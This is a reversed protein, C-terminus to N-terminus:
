PAKRHRDALSQYLERLTKAIKDESCDKIRESGNSRKGTLLIESIAQRPGVGNRPVVIFETSDSRQM